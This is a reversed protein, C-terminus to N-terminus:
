VVRGRVAQMLLEAAKLPLVLNRCIKDGEVFLLMGARDGVVLIVADPKFGDPPPAGADALFALVAPVELRPYTLVLAGVARVPELQEIIREVSVCQQAFAPSGATCSALVCFAMGFLRGRM